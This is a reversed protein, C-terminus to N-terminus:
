GSMQITHPPLFTPLLVLLFVKRQFLIKLRPFNYRCLYWGLSSVFVKEEFPRQYFYYVKM